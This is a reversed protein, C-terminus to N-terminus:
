SSSAPIAAVTNHGHRWGGGAPQGDELNQLQQLTEGDSVCVLAKIEARRAREVDHDFGHSQCEGIARNPQAIGIKHRDGCHSQEIMVTKRPAAGLDLRVAPLRFHGGTVGAGELFSREPRNVLQLSELNRSFFPHIGCGRWIPTSPRRRRRQSPASSSRWSASPRRWRVGGHVLVRFGRDLLQRATERGIGDTAGTILVTQM